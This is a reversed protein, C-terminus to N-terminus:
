HSVVVKVGADGRAGPDAGHRGVGGGMAFVAGARRVSGAEAGTIWVGGSVTRGFPLSTIIYRDDARDQTGGDGGPDGAPADTM